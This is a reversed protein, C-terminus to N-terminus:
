RVTPSPGVVLRTEGPGTRPQAEEKLLEVFADELNVKKMDQMLKQPTTVTILRNNTVAIRDCAEQAEYLNHTTWLITTGTEAQYRKLEQYLKRRTFVDMGPTPEDFVYFEAGSMLTAILWVKRQMGGSLRIIWDDLKNEMDFLKILWNMREETEQPKLKWEAGSSRLSERVNVRRYFFQYDMTCIKGRVQRHERNVDYGEYLVKGSTPSTIDLIIDCLTTKGAGNPGLLGFWEGAEITFSVDQLALVEERRGKLTDLMDRLGITGKRMPPYMKTLNQVELKHGGKAM